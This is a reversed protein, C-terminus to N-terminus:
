GLGSAAAAGLHVAPGFRGVSAGAGISVASIAGVTLGEKVGTHGQNFHVDEIVHSLGRNARNPMLYYTMCGAILAFAVMVVVNFPSLKANEIGEIEALDMLPNGDFNFLFGQHIFTETFNISILLLKALSAALLGVVIALFVTWVLSWGRRDSRENEGADVEKAVSDNM